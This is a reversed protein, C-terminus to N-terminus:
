VCNPSSKSDILEFIKRINNKNDDWYKKDVGHNIFDCLQDVTDQKIACKYREGYPKNLELSGDVLEKIKKFLDIEDKM